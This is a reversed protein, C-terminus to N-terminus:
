VSASVSATSRPHAVEEVIRQTREVDAV